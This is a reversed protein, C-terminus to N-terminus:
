TMYTTIYRTIGDAFCVTMAVPAAVSGEGAEVTGQLTGTDNGIVAPM